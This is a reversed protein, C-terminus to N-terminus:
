SSSPAVQLGWLLPANATASYLHCQMVRLSDTRADIWHKVAEAEAQGGEHGRYALVTIVGGDTMLTCAADLAACTTDPRTIRSADHGPLYGLNFTAAHVPAQVYAAMEEHGALHITVVDSLGETECRRATASCAKPQVDFAVVTGTPAVQDALFVTDHGNGATADVVRHGQALHSSLWQHAVRTLPPLGMCFLRHLDSFTLRTRM